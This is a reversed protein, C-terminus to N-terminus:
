VSGSCLAQEPGHIDPLLDASVHAPVPQLFVPRLLLKSELGANVLRVPAAAMALAFLGTTGLLTLRNRLIKTM